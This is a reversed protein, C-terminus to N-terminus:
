AGTAVPAPQGTAAVLSDFESYDGSSFGRAAAKRIADQSDIFKKVQQKKLDPNMLEVLDALTMLTFGNVQDIIVSVQTAEAPSLGGATLRAQAGQVLTKATARMEDPTM